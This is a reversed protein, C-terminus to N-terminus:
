CVTTTLTFLELFLMFGDLCTWPIYLSYQFREPLYFRWLLLNPKCGFQSFNKSSDTPRGSLKHPAFIFGNSVVWFHKWAYPFISSVMSQSFYNKCSDTLGGSFKHPAFVFTSLITKTGIWANPVIPQKKFCVVM